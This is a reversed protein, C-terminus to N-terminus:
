TAAAAELAQLTLEAARQWTFKQSQLRGKEVLNRRLADDDVLRGIGAAISDVDLPDVQLVADGGIEGLSTSSSCLVPTDCRMAEIVPFGFGEYLSPFVLALAGSYLVAIDEDAVYGTLRVGEVGATWAEDYLWGPNGGLVLGIERNGSSQRWQAYAKVLRAINKRPQLTGLFFLYKEPLNYKQRVSAIKDPEAVPRLTQDYGPYVVWIKTEPIHYYTILDQKTAEADALVITARNASYQTSWDLYRREKEPHAEPFHLYGLDHVTAVARGPFFRPLTHASVFTLDPRTRWLEAAFRLHTWMRPFEVVRKSWNSRPTFLGNPPDDRFYLTFHYNSALALLHRILELSYNETGTRQQRTTRSADVAIQLSKM